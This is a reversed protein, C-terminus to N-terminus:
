AGGKKLEKRASNSWHYDSSTRIGVHDDHESLAMDLLERLRENEAKLALERSSVTEPPVINALELYLKSLTETDAM